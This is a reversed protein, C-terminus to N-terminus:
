KKDKLIKDFNQRLSEGDEILNKLDEIQSDKKKLLTTM